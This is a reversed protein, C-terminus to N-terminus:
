WLSTRGRAKLLNQLIAGAVSVGCAGSAYRLVSSKLNLGFTAFNSLNPSDNVPHDSMGGPFSRPCHSTIDLHAYAPLLNLMQKFKDSFALQISPKRTSPSGVPIFNKIQVKLSISSAPLFHGWKM